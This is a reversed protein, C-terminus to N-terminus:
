WIVTVVVTDQYDGPKLAPSATLTARMARSANWAGINLLGGIVQLQQSGGTSDGWVVTPADPKYINYTLYDGQQSRMRRAAFTGYVGDDLRIIVGAGISLLGTCHIDVEGEASESTDHLPNIDDFTIDSATVTCDCGILICGLAHAPQPSALWAFGAIALALM